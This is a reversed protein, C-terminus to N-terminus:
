LQWFKATVNQLVCSFLIELVFALDFLGTKTAATPVTSKDYDLLKYTIFSSYTLIIEFFKLRILNGAYYVGSSMLINQSFEGYVTDFKLIKGPFKM